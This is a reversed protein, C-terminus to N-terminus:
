LVVDLRNEGEGSGIEKGNGTSEGHDITIMGFNEPHFISPIMFHEGKGDLDSDKTAQLLDFSVAPSTGDTSIAVNCGLEILEPIPCRNTLQGAEGTRTSVNTKTKALIM